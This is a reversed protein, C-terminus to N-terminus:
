CQKAARIFARMKERDKKGPEREVATSVDVGYFGYPLAQEVNEPTLNGSLIIKSCDKGEFWSLDLSGDANVTNAGFVDVIRYRESLYDIDERRQARVVRLHPAVLSGYLANTAEFHIQALTIGSLAIAKNIYKADSDVFIGVKEVFPPLQEVIKFAAEPTIFRRSGQFFIFDIADAGEEVAALADELNTIGTIKVRM